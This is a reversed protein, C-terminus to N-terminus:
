FYFGASLVINRGETYRANNLGTSILNRNNFINNINCQLVTWPHHKKFKGSWKIFLDTRHQDELWLTNYRPEFTIPENSKPDIVDRPFYDAQNDGDLDVFYHSLLAASRYKQNLGFQLGKYKGQKISYKATLNVNHDSTGATPLGELTELVSELVLTELYAYGLFISINSTPNYYLDLEIGESRVSEDAVRYGKPEFTARTLIRGEADRLYEGDRSRYPDYDWITTPLEGNDYPEYRRTGDLNFAPYISALMPWSINQRQENKKDISFFTLQGNLVNDQTSLKFGIERGKGTEPPTLKGFVDFQFGNPSIVSESYNGFVAFNKTIWYLGGLSPSYIVNKFDQVDNELSVETINGDEDIEPNASRLTFRSYESKTKINDRRVGFLTRLKGNFYSGSAAAWLANSEVKSVAKYTTVMQAINEEDLPIRGNSLWNAVPDYQHGSINYDFNADLENNYIIDDLVVYDSLIDNKLYLNNADGWTRVNYSVQQEDTKSADRNDLDIGFLFQQKGPFFDSEENYNFTIRASRNMDKNTSKKWQRKIFPQLIEVNSKVLSPLIDRVGDGDIDIFKSNDSLYDTDEVVADLTTLLSPQIYTEWMWSYDNIPHLEEKFIDYVEKTRDWFENDSNPDTAKLVLVEHIKKALARKQLEVEDASNVDIFGDIGDNDESLNAIEVYPLALMERDIGNIGEILWNPISDYILREGTEDLTFEEAPILYPEYDRLLGLGSPAGQAIQSQIISPALPNALNANFSNQWTYNGLDLYNNDELLDANSFNQLETRYTPVDIYRDLNYLQVAATNTPAGLETSSGTLKDYLIDGLSRGGGSPANGWAYDYSSGFSSHSKKLFNKVRGAFKGVEYYKELTSDAESLDLFEDVFYNIMDDELGDGDVDSFVDDHPALQSLNGTWKDFGEQLGSRITEIGLTDINDLILHAYNANTLDVLVAEFPSPGSNNPSDNYSNISRLTPYRVTIGYGSSFNIQNASWGSSLQEDQLDEFAFAAKVSFNDSFTHDIDGIVYNFSKRSYADPGFGTGSNSYDIGKFLDRIDERNDIFDPVLGGGAPQTGWINPNNARVQLGGSAYDADNYIGDNNYDEYLENILTFVPERNVVSPNLVYVSEAFVATNNSLAPRGNITTDTDIADYSFDFKGNNNADQFTVAEEVTYIGTKQDYRFSLKGDGDTDVWRFYEMAEDEKGTDPHIGTEGDENTDGYYVLNGESDRIYQTKILSPDSGVPLGTYDLIDRDIVTGSETDYMRPSIALDNIPNWPDGGSTIDGMYDLSESQNLDSYAIIKSATDLEGNNNNDYDEFNKSVIGDENLDVFGYVTFIDDNVVPYISNYESGDFDNVDSYSAIEKLLEDSVLDALKPDAVIGNPLGTPTQGVKFTGGILSRDAEGTELHLRLRTSSSPNHLFELTAGSFSQFKYNADFERHKDILMIRAATNDGLVENWDYSVKHWSKDGIEVVASGKNKNLMATKSIVNVKGGPDAQGYILSNAGRIIDSRGVNYWDLPSYRPMFEYLQSKTLLGRFRIENNNYVNGEAEISPVFNGLDELTKMKFDEIMEANVTSITMPINKTLENTRTGALTNASYYGKDDDDTVVFDPLIYFEEDSNENGFLLAHTVFFFLLIFLPYKFSHM